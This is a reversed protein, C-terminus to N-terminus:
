FPFLESSCNQCLYPETSSYLAHFKLPSIVTCKLHIWGNCMDCQIACQNRKCPILSIECPCKVPMILCDFWHFMRCLNFLIAFKSDTVFYASFTTKFEFHFCTLLIKWYVPLYLNICFPVSFFLWIRSHVCFYFFSCIDSGAVYACFVLLTGLTM